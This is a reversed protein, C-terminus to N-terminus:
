GSTQDDCSSVSQRVGLYCGDGGRHSRRFDSPPDSNRRAKGIWSRKSSESDTRSEKMREQIKGLDLERFRKLKEQWEESEFRGELDRMADEFARVADEDLSGGPGAFVFGREVDLPGFGPFPAIEPIAVDFEALDM